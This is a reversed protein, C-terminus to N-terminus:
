SIKNLETRIEILEKSLDKLQQFKFPSIDEREFFSLSFDGYYKLIDNRELTINRLIKEIRKEIIFLKGQTHELYTLEKEEKM